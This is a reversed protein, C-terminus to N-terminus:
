QEERTATSEGPARGHWGEEESVGKPLSFYFSAGQDV